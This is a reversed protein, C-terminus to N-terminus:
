RCLNIFLKMRLPRLRCFECISITTSRLQATAITAQNPTESASTECLSEFKASRKKCFACKQFAILDKNKM